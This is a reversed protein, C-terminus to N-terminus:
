DVVPTLDGAGYEVPVDPFEHARPANLNAGPLNVAAISSV